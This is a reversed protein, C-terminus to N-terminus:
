RMYFRLMLDVDAIDTVTVNGHLNMMGGGGGSNKGPLFLNFLVGCLLRFSDLCPQFTPM